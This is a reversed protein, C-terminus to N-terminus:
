EILAPSDIGSCRGWGGGCGVKGERSSGVVWWWWWGWGGERRRGKENMYAHANCSHPMCVNLVVAHSAFQVVVRAAKVGVLLLPLMANAHSPHPLRARNEQDEQRLRVETEKLTGGWRRGNRSRGKQRGPVSM